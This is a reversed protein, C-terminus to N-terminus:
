DGAKLGFTLLAVDDYPPAEGRFNKVAKLVRDNIARPGVGFPPAAAVDELRTVGFFEGALNQAETVGDTYLILIEGPELRDLFGAYTLDDMAGVVPGSLGELRRLGGRGVFLPQCHGGNAYELDQTRPDYLGIFLTVFMSSPNHVTLHRNVRTMTEAASLGGDLLAQRILTVTMSMFLAAPVGKGSVDGIILAVRGDPAAFHDYLDGGIEKAPELSFAVALGQPPPTADPAPLIGMQINRAAALEGDLREKSRNAELLANVNAVITQGMSDFSESLRGIEGDGRGLRPRDEAGTFFAAASPSSFDLHAAEDARRALAAIPRSLKRGLASSLIYALVAGLIAWIALRAAMRKVPVTVTSQPILFVLYWNFPRFHEIRVLSPGSEGPLDLAIELPGARDAQTLLDAGIPNLNPAPGISLLPSKRSDLLVTSAGTPFQISGLRDALQRVVNKPGLDARRRADDLSALSMAFSGDPLPRLLGLFASRRSNEPDVTEIVVFDGDPPLRDSAMKDALTQGTIDTVTRFDLQALSRVFRGTKSGQTSEPGQGTLFDRPVGDRDLRFIAVGLKAWEELQSALVTEVPNPNEPDVPGFPTSDGQALGLLDSTLRSFVQDAMRLETKLDAAAEVQKSIHALYGENLVNVAVGGILRFEAKAAELASDSFRSLSYAAYPGLALVVTLIVLANLKAGIRV